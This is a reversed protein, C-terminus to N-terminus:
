NAGVPMDPGEIDGDNENGSNCIIDAQIFTIIQLEANEYTEKM